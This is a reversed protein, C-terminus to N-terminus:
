EEAEIQASAKGMNEKMARRIQHDSVEVDRAALDAKLKRFVDEDGEEEFDAKVVSIAYDAAAEGQLGMLAAAWLGVLKNCRAAICFRLREDHAFKAEFSKEREDFTSM